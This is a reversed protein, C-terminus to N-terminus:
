GASLTQAATTQGDGSIEHCRGTVPLLGYMSTAKFGVTSAGKDLNWVGPRNLLERLTTM